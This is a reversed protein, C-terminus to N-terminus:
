LGLIEKLADDFVKVSHGGHEETLSRYIIEITRKVETSIQTVNEGKVATEYVNERELVEELDSLTLEGLDYWRTPTVVVGHLTTRQLTEKVKQANTTICLEEPYIVTLCLDVLEEQILERCTNVVTKIDNLGKKVKIGVKIGVDEILGNNSLPYGKVTRITANGHIQPFWNAVLRQIEKILYHQIVEEIKERKSSSLTLSKM